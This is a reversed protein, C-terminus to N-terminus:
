GHKAMYGEFTINVSKKRAVVEDELSKVTWSLIPVGRNRLESIAKAELNRFDHSVFDCSIKDFFVLGRLLALRYDSIMPWDKKKFSDSVLGIPLQGGYSKYAKLSHPNFSMVAAPGRYTSLLGCVEQELIGVNSGLAGDQDKIEILLPKKGGVIDLIEKLLPIKNNSGKLSIKKLEESTKDRILGTYNTLRDLEYDHFVIAKRDSSMQIDIEIGYGNNLANIIAEVSNEPCGKPANHLGRHAIPVHYFSYDLKM